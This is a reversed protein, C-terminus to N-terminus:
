RVAQIQELLKKSVGTKKVEGKQFKKQKEIAKELQAKLRDSLLDLDQPM